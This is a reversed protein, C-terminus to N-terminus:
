REGQTIMRSTSHREARVLATAGALCLLEVGIVALMTGGHAAVRQTSAVAAAAGHHHGGAHGPFTLWAMHVVAMVACMALLHGAASRVGHRRRPIHGLCTLCALGMGAMVWAMAGTATSAAFLHIGCSAATLALVAAVGRRGARRDAPRRSIPRRSIPQRAIPRRHAGIATTTM